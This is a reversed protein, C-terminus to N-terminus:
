ARPWGTGRIARRSARAGPTVALPSRASACESWQRFSEMTARASRMQEEDCGGNECLALYTGLSAVIACDRREYLAMSYYYWLAPNTPELEIARQFSEAAKEFDRYHEFMLRGMNVWNDAEYAGYVLANGFDIHAKGYDGRAYHIRGREALAGRNM